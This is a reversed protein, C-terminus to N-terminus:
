ASTRGRERGRVILLKVNGRGLSRALGRLQPILKELNASARTVVVLPAKGLGERFAEMVLSENYKGGFYRKLRRELADLSEFAVPDSSAMLKDVNATTWGYGGQLGAATEGLGPAFGVSTVQKFEFKYLDVLDGRRRLGIGDLGHGGGHNKLELVSMRPLGEGSFHGSAIAARIVEEFEDPTLRDLQRETLHLPPSNGGIILQRQVVGKKAALDSAAQDLDVQGRGYSGVASTQAEQTGAEALAVLAIGLAAEVADEAMGGRQAFYSRAAAVGEKGSATGLAASAEDILGSRWGELRSLAGAEQGVAKEMAGWGGVRRLTEAPGLLDLSQHVLTGAEAATKQALLPLATGLEEVTIHGAGGTLALLRQGAPSERGVIAILDESRRGTATLAAQAGEREVVGAILRQQEPASLEALRALNARAALKAELGAIKAVSGAARVAKGVGYVDVLAMVTDILAQTKAEAVQATGVVALKDSTTARSATDLSAWQNWSDAATAGSTTAAVVAGLLPTAAGLTGIEVALLLAMGLLMAGKGADAGSETVYDRAAAQAFPTSWVKHSAFFKEHVPVMSEFRLTKSEIDSRTSKINATVAALAAGLKARTEAVSQDKAAVADPGGAKGPENADVAMMAYLAPNQNLIEGIALNLQQHQDAIEEWPPMGDGKEPAYPPRHEPHFPSRNRSKADGTGAVPQGGGHQSSDSGQKIAPEAYGVDIQGLSKLADKAKKVQEAQHQQERVAADAAAPDAGPTVGLRQSEKEIAENNKRLNERAEERVDTAFQTRLDRLWQVNKPDAGRKECSKWLDYDSKGLDSAQGRSTWAEELISEERWSVIGQTVILNVVGLLQSSTIGKFPRFPDLASSDGTHLAEDLTTPGPARQLALLRSTVSNGARRQLDLLYPDRGTVPPPTPVGTRRAHGPRDEGKLHEAAM